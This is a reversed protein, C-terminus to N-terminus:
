PVGSGEAYGAGYREGGYKHIADALGETAELMALQAHGSSECARWHVARRYADIADVVAKPLPKIM